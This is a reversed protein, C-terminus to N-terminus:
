RRTNFKELAARYKACEESNPMIRCPDYTGTSKPALKERIAAVDRQMANAEAELRGTDPIYRRLEKVELWCVALLAIVACRYILRLVAEHSALWARM